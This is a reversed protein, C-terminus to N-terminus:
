TLVTVVTGPKSYAIATGSDLEISKFRGYITVGKPITINTAVNGMATPGTRTKIDGNVGISCESVDIVSETLATIAFFPGVYENQESGGFMITTVPSLSADLDGATIAMNKELDSRNAM